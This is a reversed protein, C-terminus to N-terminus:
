GNRCADRAVLLRAAQAVLSSPESAEGSGAITFCRAAKLHACSQPAPSALLTHICKRWTPKVAALDPNRAPPGGIQVGGGVVSIDQVGRRTRRKEVVGREFNSKSIISPYSMSIEAPCRDLPPRAHGDLLRVSVLLPEGGGVDVVVPM